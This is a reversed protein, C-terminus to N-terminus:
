PREPAPFDRCRARKETRKTHRKMANSHFGHGFARKGAPNVVKRSTVRMFLLDALCIRQRKPAQAAQRDRM